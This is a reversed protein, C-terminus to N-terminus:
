DLDLVAQHLRPDDALEPHFATAVINGQRVAVVEDGLHAVPVVAPGAEAIRPARIFIGHFGADPDDRGLRSWDVAVKAEFSDLQRGYANRDATAALLALTKVELSGSDRRLERALLILGACTALVPVGSGILEILPQRLASRNLLLSMTTSEGGPLILLDLGELHQPRRISLVSAGLRTLVRRHAAVDGQLALIGARKAV